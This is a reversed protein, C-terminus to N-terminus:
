EEADIPRHASRPLLPCALQQLVIATAIRNGSLQPLWPVVERCADLCRAQWGTAAEQTTSYQERHLTATLSQPAASLRRAELSVARSSKTRSCPGLASIVGSEAAEGSKFPLARSWAVAATRGSIRTHLEAAKSTRQTQRGMSSPMKKKLERPSWDM